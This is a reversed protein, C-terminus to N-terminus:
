HVIPHLLRAKTRNKHLKPTWYIYLKKSINTINEFRNKPPIKKRKKKALPQPKLIKSEIVDLAILYWWQTYLSNKADNLNEHLLVATQKLNRKKM